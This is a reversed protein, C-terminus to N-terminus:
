SDLPTIFVSPPVLSLSLETGAMRTFRRFINGLHSLLGLPSVPFDLTSHHPAGDHHAYRTLSTRAARLDEANRRARSRICNLSTTYHRGSVHGEAATCFAGHQVFVKRLQRGGDRPGISQHLKSMQGGTGGYWWWAAVGGGGAEGPGTLIMWRQQRHQNFDFM